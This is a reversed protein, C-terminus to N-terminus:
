QDRPSDLADTDRGVELPSPPPFLVPLALTQNLGSAAVNADSKSL